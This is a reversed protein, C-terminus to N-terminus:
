RIAPPTDLLPAAPEETTLDPLGDADHDWLALLPRAPDPDASSGLLLAAALDPRDPPPPQFRWTGTALVPLLGLPAGPRDPSALLTLAGTAPDLLHLERSDDFLVLLGALTGDARLLAALDGPRETGPTSGSWLSTAARREPAVLPARVCGSADRALVPMPDPWSLEWREIRAGGERERGAVIWTAADLTEFATPQFGSPFTQALRAPFRPDDCAAAAGAPDGHPEAPHRERWSVELRQAFPQLEVEGSQLGHAPRQRARVAGPTGEWVIAPQAAPPAAQLAPVLALVLAALM